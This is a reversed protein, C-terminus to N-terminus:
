AAEIRLPDAAAFAVERDPKPPYILETNISRKLAKADAGRMKVIREWGETFVAGWPGLDLCTVYRPQSYPLLPLGLLDAAATHGAWRGLQLAHQCSMMAHNGADDTAAFAVDGTAFVDEVARVRLEPSVHLRGYWDRRGPIQAALDSARMGATWIVTSSPIREGGAITVSGEDIAAVTAGTRIEVGLEKLAQEIVPRPGPGLDPGVADAQELIVVKFPTGAGLISRLREPMEAAIEIGTFGGGAVVVTNRAPSGAKHKLELLHAHLAMAGDLQDINFGHELLGPVDPLFLSSGSALILRDYALRSREGGAEIVEIRHRDADIREVRGPLHRVGVADFLAGLPPAMDKFATEHLRPRVVLEPKPSIVLIEVSGDERGSIARVRAAALASWMGAFGSGIIAIRKTMANEKTIQVLRAPDNRGACHPLPPEATL